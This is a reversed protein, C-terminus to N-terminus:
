AARHSESSDGGYWSMPVQSFAHAPLRHFSEAADETNDFIEFLRDVGTIELIVRPGPPIAAFKLDGNQKMVEEVCNLLMEIGASDLQDVRSFDFVVRPRDARLIPEVEAFFREVQGRVLRKPMEQVVVPKGTVMFGAKGPVH